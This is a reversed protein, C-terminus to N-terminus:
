PNPFTFTIGGTTAGDGGGGGGALLAVAGVAAAGAAVLLVPFKKRKQPAAAPPPPPQLALASHLRVELATTVGPLVERTVRLSDYGAASVSVAYSGPAVSAIGGPAIPGVGEASMRVADTVGRTSVQLRGMPESAIRTSWLWTTATATDGRSGTRIVFDRAARHAAVVRPLFQITDPQMGPVLRLAWRLWVAAVSDKGDEMLTQALLQVAVPWSNSRPPCITPDVAGLLLQLRRATDFENSARAVMSDCPVQAQLVAAGTLSALLMLAAIRTM